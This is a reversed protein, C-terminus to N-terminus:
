DKQFERCVGRLPANIVCLRVTSRLSGVIRRHHKIVSMAALAAMRVRYQPIGADLMPKQRTAPAAHTRIGHHIAIIKRVPMRWGILKPATSVPANKPIWKAVQAQDKNCAVSALAASKMEMCGAM